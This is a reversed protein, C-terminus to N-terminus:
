STVNCICQLSVVSFFRNIVYVQTSDTRFIFWMLSVWPYENWNIVQIRGEWRLQSVMIVNGVFIRATSSTSLRKIMMQLKCFLDRKAHLLTQLSIFSSELIKSFCKNRNLSPFWTVSFLWQVVFPLKLNNKRRLVKLCQKGTYQLQAFIYIGRGVPLHRQQSGWGGM